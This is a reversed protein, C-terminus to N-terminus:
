LLRKHHKIHTTYFEDAINRMKKDNIWRNKAACDTSDNADVYKMFLLNELIWLLVCKKM